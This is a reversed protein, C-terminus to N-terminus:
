IAQGASGVNPTGGIGTQVTGVPFSGGGKVFDSVKSAPVNYSKGDPGTMLITGTSNLGVQSYDPLYQAANDIGKNELIQVQQDRMDSYTGVQSQYQTTAANLLENIADPTLKAQGGSDWISQVNKLEEVVKSDLASADTSSLLARLGMGGPQITQVFNVIFAKQAAPDTALNPNAAASLMSNYSSAILPVNKGQPGNDLSTVAAQVDTQQKAPLTNQLQSIQAAKLAIDEKTSQQQLATQTVDNGYQGVLSTVKQLYNPDTLPIQSAQQVAYQANPDNPNNKLADAIAAQGTKVNDQAFNLDDQARTLEAQVGAAQAADAKTMTDKNAAILANVQDIKAQQDGFAIQAAADAAAKANTLQGQAAYLASKLTLSQAAITAQQVQNERLQQESIATAGFIGGQDTQQGLLRQNDITGGAGANLQLQSSQNTLGELQNSLQTVTDQLPGYVGANTEQQAQQTALSPQTLSALLQQLSTNTQDASNPTAGQAAIAALSQDASPLPSPVSTNTSNANNALATSAETANAPNSSPFIFGQTSGSAQNSIASANQTTNVPPPQPAAVNMFSANPNGTLPLTGSPTDAQANPGQNTASGPQGTSPM